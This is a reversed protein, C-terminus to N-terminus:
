VGEPGTSLFFDLPIARRIAPRTDWLGDAEVMIIFMGPRFFLGLESWSTQAPRRNLAHARGVGITAGGLGMPDASGTITDPRGATGATRPAAM